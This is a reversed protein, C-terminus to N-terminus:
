WVNRVRWAIRCVLSPGSPGPVMRVPINITAMMADEAFQGRHVSNAFVGVLIDCKGESALALQKRCDWL